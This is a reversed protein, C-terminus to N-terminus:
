PLIGLFRVAAVVVMGTLVSGFLSRTKWAVLLTPVAAVLYLNNVNLQIQGDVMLISPFLMAALVAPSVYRLWTVFVPALPRESLLWVPLVRPIYTVLTMGLITILVLNQDM